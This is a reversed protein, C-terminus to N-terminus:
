AHKPLRTELERIQASIGDIRKLVEKLRKDGANGDPSCMFFVGGPELVCRDIEQLSSFGQRHAAITLEGETLLEKALADQMIKGHEILVTPNGSAIQDLSRHRFFFRVTAYNIALLSVAGM